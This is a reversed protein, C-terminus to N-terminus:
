QTGWISKGGKHLFAAHIDRDLLQMKGVEKHHHWTLGPPSIGLKPLGAEINAAKFHQYNQGKPQKLPITQNTNKVFGNDNINVDKLINVKTAPRNPLDKPDQFDLCGEQDNYFRYWQNNVTHDVYENKPISPSWEQAEYDPDELEQMKLLPNLFNMAEDIKDIDVQSNAFEDSLAELAQKNATAILPALNTGNSLVTTRQILTTPIATKEGVKKKNERILKTNIATTNQQVVHTLEHALLEQGRRNLPQYEGQRFFVDQGTTFAKAQISQNLQDAQTDTHVKVGSFDFGFAHEMPKRINDALPQGGSRAQQISSELEASAVMSGDGAQKKQLEEEEPIVERQIGSIEPKKMLEEEESMEERQLNQNSQQTAPSNIQNVVQAAVRDAEQEYKDGAAGITLKAQIAKKSKAEAQERTIPIDAFDYNIRRVPALYRQWFEAKKAQLLNM